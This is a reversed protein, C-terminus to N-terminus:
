DSRWQTLCSASSLPRRLSPMVMSSRCTGLRSRRSFRIKRSSRSIRFTAVEKAVFVCEVRYGDDLEDPALLRTMFDAPHAPQQADRWAALVGRASTGSTSPMLLVRAQTLEDDGDMGARTAGISNGPNADLQAEVM